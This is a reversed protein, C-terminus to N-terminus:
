SVLRLSWQYTWPEILQAVAVGDDAIPSGNLVGVATFVGNGWRAVVPAGSDGHASEARFLVKNRTVATMPGCTFGTAQGLKCLTPASSRLDESSSIGTVRIGNTLQSSKNIPANATDVLAIDTSLTEGTDAYSVVRSVGVRTVGNMTDAYVPAGQVPACHGATLYAPSNDSTMVMFGLTCTGPDGDPGIFGIESGPQLTEPDAGAPAPAVATTLAVAAVAATVARLVVRATRPHHRTTV